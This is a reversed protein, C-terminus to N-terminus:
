RVSVRADKRFLVHLLTDGAGDRTSQVYDVCADQVGLTDKGPCALALQLPASGSTSYHVPIQRVPGSRCLDKDCKVLVTAIPRTPDADLELDALVQVVSGREDCSAYVKDCAGLSMLAGSTSGGPLIAVGCVPEDPTASTCSGDDGGIGGRFAAGAIGFTKIEKLVDFAQAASTTGPQPAHKGAAGLVAVTIRVQNAPADLRTTLLASTRGKEAVGTAPLPQNASGTNSAISLTTDKSFSAPAGSQDYFSVKVVFSQGAEVLVYPVADDPTGSPAQVGSTVSDVVITTPAPSSGAPAASGGGPSAGKSAASTPMGLAGITMALAAVAVAVLLPRRGLARARPDPM